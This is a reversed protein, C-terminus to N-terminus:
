TSSRDDVAGRGAATRDAITLAAYAVDRGAELQNAIDAQIIETVLESTRDTLLDAVGTLWRHDIVVVLASTGPELTDGVRELRDISFGSDRLRSALAGVLAGGRISWGVPGTVLGAIAGAVGGIVAGRGIGHRRTNEIYLCGQEDREVVAAEHIGIRGHRQAQELDQLADDAGHQNAFAAVVVLVPAHHM